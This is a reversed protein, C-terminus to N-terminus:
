VSMYAESTCHNGELLAGMGSAVGRIPAGTEHVFYPMEM